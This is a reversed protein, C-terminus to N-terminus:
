FIIVSPTVKKNEDEEEEEEEDEKTTSPISGLAKFVSPLHM